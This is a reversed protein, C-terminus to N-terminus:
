SLVVSQDQSNVLLDGIKILFLLIYLCQLQHWFGLCGVPFSIATRLAGKRQFHVFPFFHFEIEERQENLEM